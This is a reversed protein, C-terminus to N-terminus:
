PFDQEYQQIEEETQDSMAQNQKPQYYGKWHFTKGSRKEIGDVSMGRSVFYDLEGEPFDEGVVSILHVPAFLSAATGAYSASGGLIRDFAGKPTQISDFAVTGIIAVSM